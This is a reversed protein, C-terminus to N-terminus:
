THLYYMDTHTYATHTHIHTHTHTYEMQVHLTGYVAFCELPFDKVTKRNKM